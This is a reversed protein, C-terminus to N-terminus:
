IENKDVNIPPKEAVNKAVSNTASEVSRMPLKVTPEAATDADAKIIPTRLITLMIVQVGM